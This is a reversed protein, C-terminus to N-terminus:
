RETSLELAMEGPFDEGIGQGSARYKLMSQELHWQKSIVKM